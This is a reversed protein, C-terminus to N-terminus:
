RRETNGFTSRWWRGKARTPPPVRRAPDPAPKLAANSDSVTARKTQALALGVGVMAVIVGAIWWHRTTKTWSPGTSKQLTDSM